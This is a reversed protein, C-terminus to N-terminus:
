KSRSLIKKLPYLKKKIKLVLPDDPIFTYAVKHVTQHKLTEWFEREGKPPPFSRILMPNTKTAEDSNIDEKWFDKECKELLGQGKKSNVFVMSMGMGDDNKTKVLGEMGWCDGLTLDSCHCRTKFSCEFCAERLGYNWLFLRLYSSRNMMDQKLTKRGRYLTYCPNAWGKTKDRMNIRCPAYRNVEEKLYREWLMPSPTGHCIVDITILNTYDKGLYALLGGVQCGTGSFLVEKGHELDQKVAPYIGQINSQVYKSGQLRHLDEVRDVRIHSVRNEDDYAAGYVIGGQNLVHRSLGYAVGGSSSQFLPSQDLLQLAVCGYGEANSETKNKIPCTRICKGCDICIEQDIIPYLFGKEDVQMSIARVPCISECATCGSCHKKDDYVQVM